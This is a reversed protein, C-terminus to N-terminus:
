HLFALAKEADCHESSGMFPTLCSLLMCFDLARHLRAHLMADGYRLWASSAHPQSHSDLCQWAPTPKKYRESSGEQMVCAEMIM